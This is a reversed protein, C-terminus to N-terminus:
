SEKGNLRLGMRKDMYINCEGLREPEEEEEEEKEEKEEKKV